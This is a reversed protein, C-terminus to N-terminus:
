ISLTKETTAKTPLCEQVYEIEDQIEDCYMDVPLDNLDNGLPNEIEAGIADIGYMTFAIVVVMPVTLWGLLDVVAFTLLCCYVLVAQKMHILYAMPIPTGRIRDLQAVADVVVNVHTTLAGYLVGDIAKLQALRGITQVFRYSLELTVHHSEKFAEGNQDLLGKFDEYQIGPEGRTKHKIGVVMAVVMSVMREKTRPPTTSEDVGLWILRTLTRVSSHITSWLKRAEWFRDYATNTRFVLLLGLVISLSPVIANSIGLKFGYVITAICVSTSFLAVVALHPMM